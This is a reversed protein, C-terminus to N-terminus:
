ETSTAGLLKVGRDPPRHYPKPGKFGPLFRPHINICRGALRDSLTTSLVQMYRALVLYEAGGREMVDLIAAEQEARNAESVPLYHFPVGHWESLRRQAEHNSVVLDSSCVDSSWDSIRM